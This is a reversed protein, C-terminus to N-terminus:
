GAIGSHFTGDPKLIVFKGDNSRGISVKEISGGGLKKVLAKVANPVIKDYFARMGKGGVKLDLGSGTEIADRAERLEDLEADPVGDRMLAARYAKNAELWADAAAISKVAM